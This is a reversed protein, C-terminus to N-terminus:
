QVIIALVHEESLSMGVHYYVLRGLCMLVVVIFECRVNRVSFFLIVVLGNVVSVILIWKRFAVKRGLYYSCIKQKILKLRLGKGEVANKWREYKDM